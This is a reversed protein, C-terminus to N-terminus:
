LNVEVPGHMYSANGGLTSGYVFWHKLLPHRLVEDVVTQVTNVESWEEVLCKFFPYIVETCSQVDYWHKNNTTLLIEWLKDMYMRLESPMRVDVSDENLFV